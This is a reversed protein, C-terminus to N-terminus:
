YNFWRCPKDLLNLGSEYLACIMWNEYLFIIKDVAM